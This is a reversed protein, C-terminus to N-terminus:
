FSYHVDVGVSRPKQYFSVRQGESGAFAYTLPRTDTLNTVWLSTDWRRAPNKVGIRAGLSHGRGFTTPDALYPHEAGTYHDDAQAYMTLAQGSPHEYHVAWSGSFAPADPLMQGVLVPTFLALGNDNTLTETVRAHLYTAGLHIELNGLPRWEIDSEVGDIRSRPVNGLGAILPQTGVPGAWLSLSSQRDHIDSDYVAADFELSDGFFRSKIGLETTLVHEPRVYGWDVQVQAPQGYYIGAKYATAASAYLLVKDMLHYDGELRYSVNQSSHSQDLAALVTNPVIPGTFNNAAYTLLGTPDITVGNFAAGDHSYRLGTVLTWRKSLHTEAHAYLGASQQTQIFNAATIAKGGQTIFDALGYVFTWDLSDRCHYWNEAYEAGVIWEVFGGSDSALRLEESFQQQQFNKTWNNDAGPYGDYNDLSHSIFDDFASISTLNLGSFRVNLTAVAGEGNEDKYLPLGGVRVLTGGPPSDLLGATRFPLGPPVLSEVDPTSPSSPVSHDYVYHLNLLLSAEENLRIDFLARMGGRNLKGYSAGTDIDTQYGEGQITATGALRVKVSDNLPGSVAATLDTTEWRSYGIDVYGEFDDTPRRSIINIAGGATNKGYLTGQPGKLIEVRDVDYMAATLFGPLSAFVDDLYTGVGSSNNTNFDDLGIGRILFLPTSDTTANMTSLSSSVASLSLPQQIHLAQLDEGKMATVAVGIEQVDQSHKQATVVVEELVTDPESALATMPALLVASLAWALAAASTRVRTM